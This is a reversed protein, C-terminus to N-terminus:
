GRSGWPSEFGRQLCAAEIAERATKHDHTTGRCGWGLPTWLAEVACPLGNSSWRVDVNVVKIKPGTTTPVIEAELVTASVGDINTVWRTM